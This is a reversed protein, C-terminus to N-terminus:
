MTQHWSPTEEEDEDRQGLGRRKEKEASSRRSKRQVNQEPETDIAKSIDHTLSIVGGVIDGIDGNRHAAPPVAQIDNTSVPVTVFETGAEYQLLFEREREWGTETTIANNDYSQESGVTNEAAAKQYIGGNPEYVTGRYEDVPVPIEADRGPQCADFDEGVDEASLQSYRNSSPADYGMAGGAFRICDTSVAQEDSLSKTQETGQASRIRFEHEMRGKLYKGEHLKNDRCRNGDPTTYTINAREDTWKVSYGEYSMLRIFEVKSHAYKMCEDIAVMLKFKWSQGSDAVRYERSSIHKGMEKKQKQKCVSLGYQMCLEDSYDRINQIADKDQHLKKGTEFSVNNIILHSHIHERDCHTCVLVEYDKYYEALKLAVEHAKLPTVMETPSFSQVLHYYMRGNDKCYQLKTNVFENYASQPSCNFGSVLKVGDFVTKRVQSTYKMVAMMGARSQSKPSNIFNVTAM